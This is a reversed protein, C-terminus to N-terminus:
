SNSSAKPLNTGGAPDVVVHVVPHDLAINSLYWERRVFSDIRIAVALHDAQLLPTDAHPASGAISVDYMDVSPNLGSLHLAFDRAEVDAGLAASVKARAVAILRQRFAENHLLAIMTVFLGIVVVIVGLTAIAVVRTWNTRRRPPEPRD